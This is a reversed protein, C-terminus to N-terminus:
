SIIIAEISGDDCRNLFQLELVETFEGIKTPTPTEGYYYQTFGWKPKKVEVKPNNGSFDVLYGFTITTGILSGIFKNKTESNGFFKITNSTKMRKNNAEMIAKQEETSLEVKHVNELKLTDKNAQVIYPTNLRAILFDFTKQDINGAELQKQLNDMVTSLVIPTNDQINTTTQTTNTNNQNQPM